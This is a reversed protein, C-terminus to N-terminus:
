VLTKIKKMTKFSQSHSFNSTNNRAAEAGAIRQHQNLNHDRQLKKFGSSDKEVKAELDDVTPKPGQTLKKGIAMGAMM